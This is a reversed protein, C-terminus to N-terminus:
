YLCRGGKVPNWGIIRGEKVVFIIFRQAVHWEKVFGWEEMRGRSLRERKKWRGGRREWTDYCCCCCEWYSWNGPSLIREGNHQSLPPRCDAPSPLIQPGPSRCEVNLPTPPLVAPPSLPLLLPPVPHPQPPESVCNGDALAPWWTIRSPHATDSLCLKHPLAALWM